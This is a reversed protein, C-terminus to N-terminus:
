QPKSPYRSSYGCSEGILRHPGRVIGGRPGVVLVQTHVVGRAGPLKWAMAVFVDGMRDANGNRQDVSFEVMEYGYPAIQLGQLVLGQRNDKM